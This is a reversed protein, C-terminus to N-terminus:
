KSRWEVYSELTEVAHHYEVSDDCKLTYDDSMGSVMLELKEENPTIDVINDMNIYTGCLRILRM